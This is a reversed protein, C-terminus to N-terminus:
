MLSLAPLIYTYIILSKMNEKCVVVDLLRVEEEYPDEPIFM